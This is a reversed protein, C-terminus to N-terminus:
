KEDDMRSTAPSANSRTAPPTRMTQLECRDRASTSTAFAAWAAMRRSHHSDRGSASPSPARGRKRRTWSPRREPLSATRTSGSPTKTRTWPFAPTTVWASPRRM